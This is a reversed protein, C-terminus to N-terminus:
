YGQAQGDKRMETAGTLVGTKPDRAIAQYGGFMAGDKVVEVKHGMAKLAAVTEAPIGPEVHLTGLPDISPGTSPETPERGSEHNLRAADGAEQLNMGFDVLNILVQVHGQPQMAGGMLGLTMYPQGDKKVFAPIITQFPRKGPAYANAHRSDLSYLEGRDQFMFGLGDPTLGSGMGRYNSQILSVMLGDKDAVTMYTTDGPGELKPEPKPEGPAFEPTARKPDILAFRKKGYEDSLLDLPFPAFGPDAYFKAVDAHALRKAETIYHLVQPSGREWQALDVNKLINVMQLAAFGQTNPPLECLEYGKRYAVCAPEFWDSRHAAFDEITYASGQRKLYDVMVQASQG